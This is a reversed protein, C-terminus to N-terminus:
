FYLGLRMEFFIPSLKKATKPGSLALLIGFGLSARSHQIQALRCAEEALRLHRLELRSGRSLKRAARLHRKMIAFRLGTGGYSKLLGNMYNEVDRDPEVRDRLLDSRAFLGYDTLYNLLALCTASESLVASMSVGVDAIEAYRIVYQYSDYAVSLMRHLRNSATDLTQPDEDQELLQEWFRWYCLAKWLLVESAAFLGEIILGPDQLSVWANVADSALQSARALIHDCDECSTEKIADQLCFDAQLLCLKGLFFPSDEALQPRIQQLMDSLKDLQKASEYTDGEEKLTTNRIMALIYTARAKSHKPTSDRHLLNRVLRESALLDVKSGRSALALALLLSTWAPDAVRVSHSARAWRVADNFAGRSLLSFVATEYLREMSPTKPHLLVQQVDPYLHKMGEHAFWEELSAPIPLAMRRREQRSGPVRSKELALPESLQHFRAAARNIARTVSEHDRTFLDQAWQVARETTVWGDPALDERKKAAIFTALLAKEQATL